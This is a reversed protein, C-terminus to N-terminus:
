YVKGGSIKHNQVEFKGDSFVHVMAFGHTWNNLPAYDPHMDCLCGTSWTAISKGEVNNESHESKQHFHGCMAYAKARLFLGRAANVPNSIAFKYEHGHMVNLRGLRIPRCEAVYEVGCKNLELVADLQFEEMSLLEPAKVSLYSEWRDEHNGVKFIIRAKPFLERVTRIFERATKIERGLNRKRPDKEWRSISFFDVTDGNLLVTDAGSRKAHKLATVVAVRDHYPIHIDSLVAIKSRENIQVAGWDNFHNLGNPIRRFPDGPRQPERLFRTVTCADRNRKGGAGRLGRFVSRASELSLFVLPNKDYAIRALTLTHASPFQELLKVAIDRQPTM